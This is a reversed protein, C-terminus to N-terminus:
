PVCGRIEKTQLQLDELEIMLTVKSNELEQTTERLNLAQSRLCHVEESLKRKEQALSDTETRLKQTKGEINVYEETLVEFSKGKDKELQHLRAASEFFDKVPLGAAFGHVLDSWNDVQEPGIGLERLREFLSVGLLAQSTSLGKKKLDSSLQRLDNVQDFPIGPITLKGSEIEKIINAISGHSVGTEKEIQEYTDGLLYYQAVELRKTRSILEM